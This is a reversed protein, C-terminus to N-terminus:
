GRFASRRKGQESLGIGHLICSLFLLEDDYDTGARLGRHAAHARAFVYSRISHNVVFEPTARKAFAYAKRAVDTDPLGLQAFLAPAADTM